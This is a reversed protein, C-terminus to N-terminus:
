KNEKEIDKFIDYILWPIMLFWVQWDISKNFLGTMITELLIFAAFYGFVNLAIVKLKSM